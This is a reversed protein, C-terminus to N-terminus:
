HITLPDAHRFVSFKMNVQTRECVRPTVELDWQYGLTTPAKTGYLCFTPCNSTQDLIYICFRARNKVNRAWHERRNKVDRWTFNQSKSSKNFFYYYLHSDKTCSCHRHDEDAHLSWPVSLCILRTYPQDWQCRIKKRYLCKENFCGFLIKRTHISIKRSVSKNIM